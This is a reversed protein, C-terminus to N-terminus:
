LGFIAGAPQAKAPDNVPQLIEESPLLREQYKLRWSFGQAL